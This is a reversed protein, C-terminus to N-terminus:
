QSECLFRFTILAAKSPAFACGLNFFICLVNNIHLVQFFMVSFPQLLDVIRFGVWTRGFMESLPALLLPSLAYSLMYISLTLAVEADNAIHYEKAIQPLAPAM